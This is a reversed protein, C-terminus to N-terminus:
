PDKAPPAEGAEGQNDAAPIEAPAGQGSEAELEAPKSTMVREAKNYLSAILMDVEGALIVCPGAGAWNTGKLAKDIAVLKVHAAMLGQVDALSLRPPQIRKPM